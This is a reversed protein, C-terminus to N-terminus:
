GAKRSAIKELAEKEVKYRELHTLLTMYHRADVLSFLFRLAEKRSAVIKVVQGREGNTRMAIVSHKYGYRVDRDSKCYHPRLTKRFVLVRPAVELIGDESEAELCDNGGDKMAFHQEIMSPDKYRGGCGACSIMIEPQREHRRKPAPEMPGGCEECHLAHTLATLEAPWVVREVGCSLCVHRWGHGHVRSAEERTVIALQGM